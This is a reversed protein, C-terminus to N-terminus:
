FALQTVTPKHLKKSKQADKHSVLVIKLDNSDSKFIKLVTKSVKKIILFDIFSYFAEFAQLTSSLDQPWFNVLLMSYQM